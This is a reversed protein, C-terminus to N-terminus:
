NIHLELWVSNKTIKMNLHGDKDVFANASSDTLNMVKKANTQNMAVYWTYNSFSLQKLKLGNSTNSNTHISENHFNDSDNQINIISSYVYQFVFVFTFLLSNSILKMIKSFKLSYVNSQYNAYLIFYWILMYWDCLVNFLIFFSFIWLKYQIFFFDNSNLFFFM